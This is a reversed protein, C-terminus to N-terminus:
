DAVPASVAVPLNFVQGVAPLLIGHTDHHAQQHRATQQQAHDPRHGLGRGLLFLLLFAHLPREVRDAPPLVEGLSLRGRHGAVSTAPLGPVELFSSAEEVELRGAVDSMGSGLVVAVEPPCARAAEVLAAYGRLRLFPPNVM